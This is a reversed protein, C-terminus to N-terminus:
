YNITLYWKMKQFESKTNKSKATEGVLITNETRNFIRGFYYKLNRIKDNDHDNNNNNNNFSTNNINIDAM